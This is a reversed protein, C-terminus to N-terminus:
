LWGVVRKVEEATTRGEVVHRAAQEALLVVGREVAYSKLLTLPAGATIHDRLTDDLSHVEAVVFRGKYGSSHCEVCGRDFIQAHTSLAFRTAFVSHCTGCVNTVAGVGPPAAGHNGHCDNCTPASLDNKEAMAAHHVSKEYKARQDTPLPSGDPLKYGKM